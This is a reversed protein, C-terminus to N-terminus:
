TVSTSPTLLFEDVITLPFVPSVFATTTRGLVVLTSKVGVHFVSGFANGASANTQLTSVFLDWFAFSLLKGRVM